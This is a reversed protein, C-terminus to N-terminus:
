SFLEHPSLTLQCNPSPMLRGCALCYSNGTAKPAPDEDKSGKKGRHGMNRSLVRLPSRYLSLRSVRLNLGHLMAHNIPHLCHSLIGTWSDIRSQNELNHFSTSGKKFSSSSPVHTLPHMCHHIYTYSRPVDRYIDPTPLAALSV